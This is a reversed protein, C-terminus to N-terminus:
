NWGTRYYRLFGLTRGHEYYHRHNVMQSGDSWDESYGWQRYDHQFEVRYGSHTLLAGFYVQVTVLAIVSAFSLYAIQASRKM